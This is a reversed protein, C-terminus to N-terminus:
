AKLEFKMPPNPNYDIIKLQAQDFNKVATGDYTYTVPKNSYESKSLKVFGSIHEDYLHISGFNMVIEGPTLSCEKAITIVYLAALIFDSPCGIAWDVSRQNWVMNLKGETVNFQYSYHCPELSLKGINEPNWIDIIIRRSNPEKKILNIVYDLQARPPYDLILSGDPEQWLKWFPCGNDSFEKETKCDNIFSKFEGLVGKYFIKRANLLPFGARLDYRLTGGFYELTKGNRGQKYTGKSLIQKGLKFYEYDISQLLSTGRNNAQVKMNTWRCNSPEYNGDNNIRDISLTEEYGSDLAWTKFAKYRDWAPDRGVKKDIYNQVSKGNSRKKMAQWINYLRTGRDSLSSSLSMRKCLKCRPSSASIAHDRRVEYENECDQCQMLFYRKKKKNNNLQVMGLDKIFGPLTEEAKKRIKNYSM